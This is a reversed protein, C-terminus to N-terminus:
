SLGRRAEGSSLSMQHHRFTDGTLKNNLSAASSRYEVQTIQDPEAQLIHAKKGQRWEAFAVPSWHKKM